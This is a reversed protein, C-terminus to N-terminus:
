ILIICVGVEQPQLSSLSHIFVWLESFLERVLCFWGGLLLLSSSKCPRQALGAVSFSNQVVLPGPPLCIGLSSGLHVPCYAQPLRDHLILVDWGSSAVRRPSSDQLLSPHLPHCPVGDDTIDAALRRPVKLM